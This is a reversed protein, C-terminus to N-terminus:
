KTNNKKNTKRKKFFLKIKKWYIVLAAGGAIAVGAVAQIVYTMASPDLYAAVNLSFMFMLGVFLLLRTTFRKVM